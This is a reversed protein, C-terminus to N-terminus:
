RSRLISDDDGFVDHHWHPVPHTERRVDVPHGSIALRDGPLKRGDEAPGRVVLGRGLLPHIRDGIEEHRAAVHDHELIEPAAMAGFAGALVKVGGIDVLPRIPVVGDLPDRGLRPRVAAHSHDAARVARDDLLDGGEVPRRM